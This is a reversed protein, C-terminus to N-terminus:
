KENTFVLTFYSTTQIFDNQMIIGSNTNGLLSFEDIGRKEALRFAAALSAPSDLYDNGLCFLTSYDHNKMYRMTERDKAQAESRTLYHSFDVSSILVTNQDLFPELGLLLQDVDKLSVDHHLVVPVIRVEPLFHRILPVLAGISHEKSLAEEDKVALGSDLLQTVVKKDTELTGEPTQWGFYGTIIKAGANPHNPGVIIIRTPAQSSLLALVEAILRGAVLHHPVVASVVRGNVFATKEGKEALIANLEQRTVFSPHTSSGEVREKSQEYDTSKEGAPISHSCGTVLFLTCILLCTFLGLHHSILKRM